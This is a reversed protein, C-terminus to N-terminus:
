KVLRGQLGRMNAKTLCAVLEAEDLFRLFGSFRQRNALANDIPELFLVLFKSIVPVKSYLVSEKEGMGERGYLKRLISRIVYISRSRFSIDKVELHADNCLRNFSKFDYRRLHGPPCGSIHKEMYPITIVMIGGAKLVKVMEKLAVSDDPLHELVDSCIVIDFIEPKFPLKQTKPCRSPYVRM